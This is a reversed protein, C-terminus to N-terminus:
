DGTESLARLLAARWGDDQAALVEACSAVCADCIMAGRGAVLHKVADGPKGCFACLAAEAENEGAGALHGVAGLLRDKIIGM